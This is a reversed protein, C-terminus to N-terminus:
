HYTDKNISSNDSNAASSTKSSDGSSKPDRVILTKAICDFLKRIEPTYSVFDHSWIRYVPRRLLDIFTVLLGWPHPRSVTLRELLVRTIIEKVETGNNAPPAIPALFLSLLLQSFYHTHTNPYRLHNAMAGVLLYKGEDNLQCLVSIFLSFHPMETIMSAYKSLTTEKTVKAKLSEVANNGVFIAFANITSTNLSSKEPYNYFIEVVIKALSNSNSTTFDKSGSSPNSLFAIIKDNLDMETLIKAYNHVIRPTHNLNKLFEVHRNSSFPCPLVVSRPFASLILNRLQIANTAINECFTFYYDCIFNPFDHLLVLLLRLLAKYMTLIPKPIERQAMFQSLFKLMESLLRAYMNSCKLNKPDETYDALSKEIFIRNGILELYFFAFLPVKTPAVNLLSNGYATLLFTSISDFVNDPTHLSVFLMFLIRFYPLGNFYLSPYMVSNGSKEPYLKLKQSYESADNILCNVIITLIKHLMSLKILTARDGSYKILLAIFGVLGDLVYFCKNKTTFVNAQDIQIPVGDITKGINEASLKVLSDKVCSEISKKFFFSMKQDCKLMGCGILKDIFLLLVITLISIFKSLNQLHYNSNLINSYSSNPTDSSHFMLIWERLLDDALDSCSVGDSSNFGDTPPSKSRQNSKEPSLKQKDITESLANQNGIKQPSNSAESPNLSLKQKLHILFRHIIDSGQQDSNVYDHLLESVQRFDNEFSIHAIPNDIFIRKFLSLIFDFNLVCSSDFYGKLLSDYHTPLILQNRLLMDILNVDMCKQPPMQKMCLIITNPRLSVAFKSGILSKLVNLVFTHISSIAEYQSPNEINELLCLISYHAFANGSEETPAQFHRNISEFLKTIPILTSPINQQYPKLEPYRFLIDEYIQKIRNYLNIEIDTLNQVNMKNQDTSETSMVEIKKSMQDAYRYIMEIINEKFILSDPILNQLKSLSLGLYVETNYNYAVSFDYISLFYNEISKTCYVKVIKLMKTIFPVIIEVEQVGKLFSENLLADIPLEQHLIPINNLLTMRVLLEGLNELKRKQISDFNSRNIALIEKIHGICESQSLSLLTKSYKSYTIIKLYLTQCDPEDACRQCIIYSVASVFYPKLAEEDQELSELQQDFLQDFEDNKQKITLATLSNLIRRLKSMFKQDIKPELTKTTNTHIISTEERVKLISSLKKQVSGELAQFNQSTALFELLSPFEQIEDSLHGILKIAFTSTQDTPTSSFFYQVMQLLDIKVVNSFFNNYDVLNQSAAVIFLHTSFTSKSHHVLYLITQSVLKPEVLSKLLGLVKEANIFKQQQSFINEQEIIYNIYKVFGKKITEYSISAKNKLDELNSSQYNDEHNLTFCLLHKFCWPYMNLLSKSAESYNESLHKSIILPNSKFIIKLISKALSSHSCENCILSLISWVLSCCLGNISGHKIRSEITLDIYQLYQLQDIFMAYLVFLQNRVNKWQKYIAFEVFANCLDKLNEETSSLEKLILFFKKTQDSSILFFNSNDFLYVIKKSIKNESALTCIVNLLETFHVDIKPLDPAQKIKSFRDDHSYKSHSIYFSILQVIQWESITKGCIKYFIEYLSGITIEPKCLNFEKLTTFITFSDEEQYSHSGYICENAIDHSIILSQQHESKVQNASFLRYLKSLLLDKECLDKLISLNNMIFQSIPLYDLFLNKKKANDIKKMCITLHHIAMMLTLTYLKSSKDSFNNIVIFFKLSDQKDLESFQLIKDMKQHNLCNDTLYVILSQTCEKKNISFNFLLQFLSKLESKKENKINLNESAEDKRVFEDILSVIRDSLSAEVSSDKNQSVDLAAGPLAVVM